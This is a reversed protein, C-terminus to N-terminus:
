IPQWRKGFLYLNVGTIKNSYILKLPRLRAPLSEKITLIYSFSTGPKAYSSHMFPFNLYFLNHGGYVLVLDDSKIIKKLEGDVDYFDGFNFNLNKTLFNEAKEKGFVVPIFKKNAMSRYFINILSVFALLPVFVKKYFKNEQQLFITLFLSLAPLYPLFYRAGDVKSILCWFILSLILYGKLGGVRRFIKERVNAKLFRVGILPLFILFIPSIPDRPYYFLIWLNKMMILPNLVLNHSKDLIGGFIPFIPNGTNTLSFILWPLLIFLSPLFVFLSNKLSRSKLYILVLFVPLTTLATLKTSIALGIMVGLEVLIIKNQNDEKNWWKLFFTLAMIEFFVRSLDVNATISEWGVILTSYFVLTTMLSWRKNLYKKSLNYLAAASFIGFFFNILKALIGNPSFPLSLLYLMETLKPMASYYFLGGPLFSIQLNQLYIKPITLHYWLADFGLEPGLAGILNILAHFFILFFIFFSLRDRSIDLFFEKISIWIRKRFALIFFSLVFLVGLIKLGNIGSPKFMFQPLALGLAFVIYSFIGIIIAAEAM